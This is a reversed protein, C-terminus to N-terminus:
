RLTELDIVPDATCRCQYDEGPNARRGTKSDVVPPNDYSFTRGDLVKHAERVREDHSTRWIYKTIGVERHRLQTLEGNLKLVQDRAILRARSASFDPSIRAIQAAIDEVRVGTRASSILLQEVKKRTDDLVNTILAVNQTRFLDLQPGIDSAGMPMDVGYLSRIQREVERANHAAVDSGFDLALQGILDEPAFRQQFALTLEELIHAIIADTPGDVRLERADTRPLPALLVLQPIYPTVIQDVVTSLPALAGQLARAYDNSLALPPRVGAATMTRRASVARNMRRRANLLALLRNDVALTM